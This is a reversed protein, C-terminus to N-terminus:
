GYSLTIIQFLLHPFPPEYYFIGYRRNNKTYIDGDFVEKMFSQINVFYHFFFILWLLPLYLYKLAGMFHQRNKYILSHWLMVMPLLSQFSFYLYMWIFLTFRFVMLHAYPNKLFTKMQESLTHLSGMNKKKRLKKLKTSGTSKQVFKEPYRQRMYADKLTYRRAAKRYILCTIYVVVTIAYGSINEKFKSNGSSFNDLGIWDIWKEDNVSLIPIQIIFSANIYVAAVFICIYTISSMIPGQLEYHLAWSM